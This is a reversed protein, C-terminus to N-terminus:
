SFRFISNVFSAFKMVSFVTFNLFGSWQCPHCGSCRSCHFWIYLWVVCLLKDWPFHSSLTLHLRRSSQVLFHLLKPVLGAEAVFQGLVWPHWLWDQPTFSYFLTELFNIKAQNVLLDYTRESMDPVFLIFCFLPCGGSYLYQGWFLRLCLPHSHPHHEVWTGATQFSRTLRGNYESYVRPLFDNEVSLILELSQSLTTVDKLVFFALLTQPLDQNVLSKSLITPTGLLSCQLHISREQCTKWWTPQLNHAQCNYAHSFCLKLPNCTNTATVAFHFVAKSVLSSRSVLFPWSPHLLTCCHVFLTISLSPFVLIVGARDKITMLCNM